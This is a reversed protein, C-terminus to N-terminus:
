QLQTHERLFDALKSIEGLQLHLAVFQYSQWLAKAVEFSHMTQPHIDHALGLDGQIGKWEDLQSGKFIQM